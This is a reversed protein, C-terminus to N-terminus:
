LSDFEEQLRAKRAALVAGAVGLTLEVISTQDAPDNRLTFSTGKIGIFLEDSEKFRSITKLINELNQIKYDLSNANELKERTM